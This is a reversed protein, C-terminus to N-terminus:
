EGSETTASVEESIESVEKNSKRSKRKPKEETVVEDASTKEENSPDFEHIDNATENTTVPLSDVGDVKTLDIKDFLSDDVTTVSLGKRIYSKYLYSYKKNYEGVICAAGPSITMATNTSVMIVNQDKNTTNTVLVNKM